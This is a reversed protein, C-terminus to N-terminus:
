SPASPRPRLRPSREAPSAKLLRRSGITLRARPSLSSRPAARVGKPKALAQVEKETVVRGEAESILSAIAKAGQKDDLMRRSKDRSERSLM